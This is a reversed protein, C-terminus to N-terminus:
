AGSTRSASRAAVHAEGYLRAMGALLRDFLVPTEGSDPTFVPLRYRGFEIGLDVQEAVDLTAANAWRLKM